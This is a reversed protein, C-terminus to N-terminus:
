IRVLKRTSNGAKLFYIGSAQDILDISTTGNILSGSQVTQGNVNEISFDTASNSTITYVGNSPNPAITLQIKTSTNIGATAPASHSWQRLFLWVQMMEDIDNFPRYLYIHDAGNFRWLEVSTLPSCNDYVFRDITINDAALNPLQTSDATADCGHVNRWFNMTEAVLSLSPLASGSYPVTGDATGHLHIVPTAYTPSCNAIDSTPMTGAMCGIAAIRSNMACALHHTMISGMSFGTFYVRAPDVNYYLIMSDLIANMFSIDDAPSALLTANNWSTQGYANLVGQPYIAIARATDAIYNFGTGIMDSSTGGIGHLIVVLSVQETQPDFAAPLYQKYTRNSSGITITKNTLQGWSVSFCSALLLLCLTSYIKNM